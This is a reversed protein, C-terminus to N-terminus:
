IRLGARAAGSCFSRTFAGAFIIHVRTFTRLRAGSSKSDDDRAVLFKLPGHSDSDRSNQGTNNVVSGVGSARYNNAIESQDHEPIIAVATAPQLTRARIVLKRFLKPQM